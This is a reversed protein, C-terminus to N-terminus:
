TSFCLYVPIKACCGQKNLYLTKQNFSTCIIQTLFKNQPRRKTGFKNQPRRKLGFKNQPGRKLGFKNQPGKKTGFKNQPGKKTGFKNQPGRKLGFKNQPEIKKIYSYTMLDPFAIDHDFQNECKAESAKPERL